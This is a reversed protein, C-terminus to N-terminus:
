PPRHTLLALWEGEARVRPPPFGARGLAEEVGRRQEALVGSALLWGGGELAQGLAPALECLARASLNALVGHFRGGQPWPLSGRRVLVRGQLGNLRVNHRAARVAQPDIDLALVEGAGLLAAAIALIGSGTGLDLVRQGPALVEQLWLLCLRTTPHHGTGFAMGPELLLRVQGPGPTRVEWPPCVLLRGIQLPLFGARWAREWEEERIPREVVPPLPTILSLLRLAIDIRSRRSRLTRTVPLYARVTVPTHPPPAEGEEPSWGGEQEVAIRAGVGRFVHLVPEAVEPAVTLSFEM